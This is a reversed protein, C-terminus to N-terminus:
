QFHKILLLSLTSLTTKYIIHKIIIIVTWRDILFYIRNPINLNFILIKNQFSLFIFKIMELIIFLFFYFVCLTFKLVVILRILNKYTRILLILRLKFWIFRRRGKFIINIRVEILFRIWIITFNQYFGWLAWTQFFLSLILINIILVIFIYKSHFIFYLSRLSLLLKKWIAPIIFISSIYFLYQCFFNVFILLPSNTLQAILKFLFIIWNIIKLM